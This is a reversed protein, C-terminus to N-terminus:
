ANHMDAIAGVDFIGGKSIGMQRSIEDFSRYRVVVM